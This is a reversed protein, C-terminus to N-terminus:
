GLPYRFHVFPIPLKCTTRYLLSLTAVIRIEVVLSTFDANGLQESNGM